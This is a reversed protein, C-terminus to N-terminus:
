QTQKGYEVFLTRAQELAHLAATRSDLHTRTNAHMAALIDGAVALASPIRSRVTAEQYKKHVEELPEQVAFSHGDHLVIMTNCNKSKGDYFSNIKDVVCYVKSDDLSTLTLLSM